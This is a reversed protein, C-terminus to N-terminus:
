DEKKREETSKQYEPIKSIMEVSEEAKWRGKQNMSELYDLIKTICSLYESDAKEIRQICELRNIKNGLEMAYDIAEFSKEDPLMGFMQEMHNDIWAIHIDSDAPLAESLALFSDLEPFRDDTEYRRISMHSLGSAKALEIQSLGAEKRAKRLAEGFSQDPHRKITKM